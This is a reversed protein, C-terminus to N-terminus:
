RYVARIYLHVCVCFNNLFSIKLAISSLQIDIWTNSLVGTGIYYLSLEKMSKSAPPTANNQSKYKLTREHYSQCKPVMQSSHSRPHVLPQLLRSAARSPVCMYM